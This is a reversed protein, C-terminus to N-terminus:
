RKNLTTCTKQENIVISSALIRLVISVTTGTNKGTLSSIRNGSKKGKKNM